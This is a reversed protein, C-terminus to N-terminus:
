TSTVMSRRGAVPGAPGRLPEPGDAVVGCEIQQGSAVVQQDEQQLLGQLQEAGTGCLAHGLPDALLVAAGQGSLHRGAVALTRQAGGHVGDGVRQGGVPEGRVGLVM